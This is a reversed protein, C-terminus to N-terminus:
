FFSRIFIQKSYAQLHNTPEIMFYDLSSKLRKSADKLVHDVVSVDIFENEGEVFGRLTQIQKSYSITLKTLFSFIIKNLSICILNLFILNLFELYRFNMSSLYGKYNIINICSFKIAFYFETCNKLICYMRFNSHM